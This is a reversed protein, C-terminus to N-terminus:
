RGTTRLYENQAMQRTKIANEWSDKNGKFQENEWPPSDPKGQYKGAKYQVVQSKEGCATLGLPLLAALAIIVLKKM